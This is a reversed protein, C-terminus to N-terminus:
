DGDAFSFGAGLGIAGGYNDNLRVILDRLNIIMYDLKARQDPDDLVFEIDPSMGDAVGELASFLFNVSSVISRVDEDLLDEMGADNLLAQLADLNAAISPWTNQSRWYIARAAFNPGDEGRYFYEIRQDRVTEAGHVLIGLLATLAEDDTRFLPNEPGPHKWADAVGDEAEWAAILEGAVRDMNTAIAEGYRCRYTDPAELMTEYRTGFLVFELALLGQMAVSKQPLYDPDLASEDEEVIAAQVQKLGISKRDPYYLIREFRHDELVPGTRVIEIASWAEVTNDFAATAAEYSTEDPSACFAEVAGSLTATSAAFNQYGPRIFGDVAQELVGPVAHENMAAASGAILIVFTAALIQKM